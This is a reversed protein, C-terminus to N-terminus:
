DGQKQEKMYQNIKEDLLTSIQIVKESTLANGQLVSKEMRLRLSSIEDELTDKTRSLLKAKRLWKINKRQEYIFSDNLGLSCDYEVLAM